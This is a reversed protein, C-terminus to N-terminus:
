LCFKNWVWSNWFFYLILFDVKFAITETFFNPKIDFINLELSIEYRFVLGKFRKIYLM